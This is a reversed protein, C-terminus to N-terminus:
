RHVGVIRLRTDVLARSFADEYMSTLAKDMGMAGHISGYSPEFTLVEVTLDEHIEIEADFWLPLARESPNSSLDVIGRVQVLIPEPGPEPRRPDTSYVDVTMRVPVVQVFKLSATRTESM